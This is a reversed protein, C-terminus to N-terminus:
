GRAINCTNCLVNRFQGTLHDHDLCRKNMSVDGDIFEIDCNECKKTNIYKDYLEDFNDAIVGRNRWGTIKQNKKGKETKIYESKMKSIKEKNVERYEKEYEALKEKNAERYEKQTEAIKEKNKQQYEKQYKEREEKSVLPM